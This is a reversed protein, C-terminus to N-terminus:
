FGTDITKKKENEVRQNIKLKQYIQNSPYIHQIFSFHTSVPTIIWQIDQIIKINM